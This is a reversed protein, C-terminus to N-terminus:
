ARETRRLSLLAAALAALTAGAMVPLTVLYSFFGYPDDIVLGTTIIPAVGWLLAFPAAKWGYRRLMLLVPVFGILAAVAMITYAHM